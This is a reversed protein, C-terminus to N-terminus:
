ISYLPPLNVSAHGVVWAYASGMCNGAIIEVVAEIEQEVGINRTHVHTKDEEEERERERRGRKKQYMM